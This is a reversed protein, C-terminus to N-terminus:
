IIGAALENQVTARSFGKAIPNEERTGSLCVKCKKDGCPKYKSRQLIDDRRKFEKITQSKITQTYKSHKAITKQISDALALIDTHTAPKNFANLYDKLILYFRMCDYCNDLGDTNLDLDSEGIISYKKDRNVTNHYFCAEEYQQNDYKIISAGQKVILRTETSTSGPFPQIYIDGAPYETLGADWPLRFKFMSLLPNMIRWWDLQMAMNRKIVEQTAPESRIDSCFVLGPTNVWKRADEDTFFQVHTKIKDTPAIIFDNPDYLEFQVDPFMDSLVDIHDGPAAGAYVMTIPDLSAKTALTLFEIETLMLKLQGWHLTRKFDYPRQFYKARKSLDLIPQLETITTIEPDPSYHQLLNANYHPIDQIISHPRTNLRTTPHPRTNLAYFGGLVQETNKQAAMTQNISGYKLALVGLLAGPLIGWDLVLSLLIIVLVVLISLILREAM